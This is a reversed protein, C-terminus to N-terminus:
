TASKQTSAIAERLGEQIRNFVEELTSNMKIVELVSLITQQDQDFGEQLIIQNNDGVYAVPVEGTRKRLHLLRRDSVFVARVNQDTADETKKGAARFLTYAILDGFWKSDFQAGHLIKQLKTPPSIPSTVSFEKPMLTEDTGIYGGYFNGSEEIFSIFALM